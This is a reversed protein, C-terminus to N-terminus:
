RLDAARGGWGGSVEAFCQYQTGDVIIANTSLMVQYSSNPYNTIYGHKAFDDQAARLRSVGNIFSAHRLSRGHAVSFALFAAVLVVLIISVWKMTRTTAQYTKPEEM